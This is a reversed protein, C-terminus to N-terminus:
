NLIGFDRAVRDWEAAAQQTRVAGLIAGLDAYAKEADAVAGAEGAVVRALLATGVAAAGKPTQTGTGDDTEAPATDALVEDILGTAKELLTKSTAGIDRAVVEAVHGKADTLRSKNKQSLKVAKTGGGAAARLGLKSKATHISAARESVDSTIEVAKPEGTWVPKGDRVEWSASWCSRPVPNWGCVALIGRDPFTAILLVDDWERVDTGAADELFEHGAVELDRCTQEWSGAIPPLMLPLHGHIGKAAPPSAGKGGCPCPTVAKGPDGAPEPGRDGGGGQVGRGHEAPRGDAGAQQGAGGPVPGQLPRGGVQRRLTGDGSGGPGIELLVGGRGARVTVGGEWGGRVVAPRADFYGKALQKAVPTRLVGKSYAEIMGDPNSPVSVVSGELVDFEQVHFGTAYNKGDDGKEEILVWKTPKFGHSMRLADFKIFEAVDRGIPTDIVAFKTKVRKSNQSTVSLLKGVPEFPIHQWLLPMHPDVRAGKSELVDGDRDRTVSTLTCEFELCAGATTVAPLVRKVSMDPNHYVLKSEAEKLAVAWADPPAKEWTTRACLGGGFCEDVAALCSKAFGVGWRGRYTRTRLGDMFTKLTDDM